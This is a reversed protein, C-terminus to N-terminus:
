DLDVKAYIDQLVININLSEILLCDDAKNLVTLLWQKDTKRQYYEIQLRDQSVLIYHQVSPLRQYMSFKYGRDYSETSPSLVEIILMPNCLNDLNKDDFQQPECALVVDPYVFNGQESFKVRMDSSYVQCDSNKLRVGLEIVLNSTLTNHRRSAGAMAFLEGGVFESRESAKRELELYMAPTYLLKKQTSM